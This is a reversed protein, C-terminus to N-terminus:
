AYFSAVAATVSGISADDLEPYLPLSLIKKCASEANPFDGTHHGLYTYAAVQHIPKPYHVLTQVGQADLHRRLADRDKSRICFIHHAPSERVSTSLLQLPLASLEQDYFAAIERRRRNWGDLRHLKARLIAAQMEDLRSNIGVGEHRYGGIDGYNRLARVGEAIDERSTVVAGGDGYAGLNKTPYFSFAAADGFTGCNRGDYGAGHAQACDEVVALDHQRAVDCLADMHCPRGYLHVPVIAKTQPTLAAKVTQPTLLLTQDDVDALIPRAGTAVIGAITPVCTNAPAIVDDKPGIGLAQLALRLADTGSGVGLCHATGVYNAFEKEFAECEPGLIFRGRAYVRELAKRVTDDCERCHARLDLFPIM